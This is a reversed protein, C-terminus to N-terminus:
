DIENLRNENDFNYYGEFLKKYKIKLPKNKTENYNINTIDKLQNEWCFININTNGILKILDKLVNIYLQYDPNEFYNIKELHLYIFLIQYPINKFLEKESTKKHIEIIKQAKEFHNKSKVHSWPLKLKFLFILLYIFSEIETKKSPLNGNLVDFAMFHLNGCFKKKLNLNNNNNERYILKTNNISKKKNYNIESALGFDIM